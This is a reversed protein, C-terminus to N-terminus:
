RDKLHLKLTLFPDYPSLRQKGHVPFNDLCYTYLIHVYITSIDIVKCICILDYMEKVVRKLREFISTFM